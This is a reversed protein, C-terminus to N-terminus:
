QWRGTAEAVDYGESYRVFGNEEWVAVVNVRLTPFLTREAGRVKYVAVDDPLHYDAEGHRALYWFYIVYPPLGDVEAPGKVVTGSVWHEVPFSKAYEYAERVLSDWFLDYEEREERGQCEPCLGLRWGYEEALERAEQKSSAWPGRGNCRTCVIAYEKLTRKEYRM